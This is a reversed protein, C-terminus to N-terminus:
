EEKAELEERNLKLLTIVEDDTTQAFDRYFQGIASFSAPTYLCVVRDAERKLANITSLPGVPVAIIVSKPNKKRVSSLAAQITAGTAIGDDVIIVNRSKLNPFAINRRYFTLRRRIELRQRETEEEIYGESVDLFEVLGRDLITTGDKTVAGIALEPNQPAGIKRPVIIDLPVKLKHAIEYGVIVGGRPIALVVANGSYEKLESALKKGTEIRDVFINTQILV